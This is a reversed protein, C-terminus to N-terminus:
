SIEKVYINKFYVPSRSDHNQLGIYGEGAFDRVKGRPEAEWDLVLVDNLEIKIRDGIFSIKFHNWEGAPHFADKMPAEADYAAGTKHIGKGAPNIQIEFSHYIYDDSVPVDPVRLFIGSNTFKDACRYDLELIFDKYEKVAYWLLGMGGQGKLVGTRGDLEFYGPGYHNWGHKSYGWRSRKLIQEHDQFYTISRIYELGKKVAPSPNDIDEKKEHEISIYGMYDQLTLEALIDHINAKGEGFPVDFAEKTGFANLDKLHVDQIRGKLARLAELPKVGSRMWHGTDACAGIRPDLGDTRYIVTEPRAYKSPTPHNHIAVNIRYKKVMKEILSYDDYGPETVITRIGMKQAFAFVKDMEEEVNEFNVVGYSVLTLGLDKLQIKVRDIQEDPLNHDFEVKPNNKELIQGPYPQVYEIGLDKIRQLAEFFSFKRFTWCQVAFPFKKIRVGEYQSSIDLKGQEDDGSKTGYTLPLATALCVIFVLLFVFLAFCTKKNM